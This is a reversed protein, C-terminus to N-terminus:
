YDEIQYPSFLIFIHIKLWFGVKFIQIVNIFTLLIMGLVSSSKFWKWEKLVRQQFYFFFNYFDYFWQSTCHAVRLHTYITWTHSQQIAPGLNANYHTLIYKFIFLWIATHNSAFCSSIYKYSDNSDTTKIMLMEKCLTIFIRWILFSLM